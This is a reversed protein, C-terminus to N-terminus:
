SLVVNSPICKIALKYGVKIGLKAVFTAGFTYFDEANLLPYGLTPINDKPHGTAFDIEAFPNMRSLDAELSKRNAEDRAQQALRDRVEPAYVLPIKHGYDM